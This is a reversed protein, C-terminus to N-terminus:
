RHDVNSNGFFVVREMGADGDDTDAAGAAVGHVVHDAGIQLAHLRRTQLVSAWASFPEDASRRM